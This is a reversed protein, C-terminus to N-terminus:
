WLSIDNRKLIELFESTIMATAGWLVEGNLDYYPVDKLHAISFKMDKVKKEDAQLKHIPYTIVKHVESKQLIFETSSSCYGVYPSVLFDSVFVYITSLPGLITIEHSQIGIEEYTERLATAQLSEDAKEVQGGPFSIQGSHKDHPNNSPRQIYVTHLQENEDPYLLLMVAAKKSTSKAKRNMDYGVSSMIKQGEWGPLSQNLANQIQSISDINM